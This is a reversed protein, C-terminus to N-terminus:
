EKDKYTGMDERLQINMKQHPPSFPCHRCGSGCCSGRKVHYLETMIVKGNELYYDKKRELFCFQENSNRIFDDRRKM